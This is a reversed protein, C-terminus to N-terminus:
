LLRRRLAGILSILGSEVLLVTSPEPVTTDVAEFIDEDIGDTWAFDGSGNLVLKDTSGFPQVLTLDSLPGTYIGAPDGNPNFRSGFGTRGNNCVALGPAGGAFAFGSPVSCSTGDDYTLSPATASVGVVIGQVYTTYCNVVGPNGCNANFIVVAGATDIGFVNNFNAEGLNYVTYTDANASMPSTFLLVAIACIATGLVVNSIKM